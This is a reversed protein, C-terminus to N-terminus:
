KSIYKEIDPKIEEYFGCASCSAFREGEYLFKEGEVQVLLHKDPTVGMRGIPKDFPFNIFGYGDVFQSISTSNSKVWVKGTKDLLIESIFNGRLSSSDQQDHKYVKFSHGDYFNLGDWTGVWIGGSPDNMIQNISNNSLGDEATFTKFKINQGSVRLIFFISFFSLVFTKM